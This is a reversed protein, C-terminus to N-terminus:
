IMRVIIQLREPFANISGITTDETFVFGDGLLIGGVYPCCKIQFPPVKHPPSGGGGGGQTPRCAQSDVGSCELANVGKEGGEM